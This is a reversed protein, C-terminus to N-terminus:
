FNLLLPRRDVDICSLEECVKLEKVIHKKADETRMGDFVGSNILVENGDAESGNDVNKIVELVPLGHVEALAADRTDHAPVGMVAGSGFDGLVKVIRLM